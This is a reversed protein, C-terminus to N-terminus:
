GRTSKHDTLSEQFLIKQIDYNTINRNGFRDIMHLVINTISDQINKQQDLWNNLRENEPHESIRWTVNKRQEKPM